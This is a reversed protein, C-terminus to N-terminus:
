QKLIDELAGTNADVVLRVGSESGDCKVYTVHWMAHHTEGDGWLNIKVGYGKGLLAQGHKEALTYLAAGDRAFDPRLAPIYGAPEGRYASCHLKGDGTHIQMGGKATALYFSVSWDTSSGNPQLPATASHELRVPVADAKWSKALSESFAYIEALTLMLAMPQTKKCDNAALANVAGGM